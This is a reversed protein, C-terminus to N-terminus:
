IFYPFESTFENITLNEKKKIWGMDNEEVHKIYRMDCKSTLM